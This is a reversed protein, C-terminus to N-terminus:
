VRDRVEVLPARATYEKLVVCPSRASVGAGSMSEYVCLASAMHMDANLRGGRDTHARVWSGGGLRGAEYRRM